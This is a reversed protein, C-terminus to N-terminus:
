HVATEKRGEEFGGPSPAQPYSYQLVLTGAPLTEVGGVITMRVTAAALLDPRYVAMMEM